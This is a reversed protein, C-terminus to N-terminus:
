FNAWGTTALRVSYVSSSATIFLRNLKPGGFCLNSVKEPIFVKGLLAGDPHYCHVGEAASTWIRGQNDFRFGDFVGCECEAFVKGGSLNGDTSVAFARIHHEGSPYRTGGSDAIYLTQEDPSFALGNPCAFDDTLQM